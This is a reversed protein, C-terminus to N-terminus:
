RPTTASPSTSATERRGGAQASASRPTQGWNVSPSVVHRDPQKWLLMGNYADRAVLEGNPPGRLSGVPAEDAIYFIRGGTSVM